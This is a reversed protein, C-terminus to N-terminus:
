IGPNADILAKQYVSVAIALGTHVAFLLCSLWLGSIASVLAMAGLFVTALVRPIWSNALKKEGFLVSYWFAQLGLTAAWWLSLFIPKDLLPGLVPITGLTPILLSVPQIFFGM